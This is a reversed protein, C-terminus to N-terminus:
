REYSPHGEITARPYVHLLLLNLLKNYLVLPMFVITTLLIGSGISILLVM